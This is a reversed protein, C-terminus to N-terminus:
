TKGGRSPRGYFLHSRCRCDSSGFGKTSPFAEAMAMALVCELSKRSEMMIAGIVNSHVTLYDIHWFKRKRKRAHRALRKIPSKGGSGVYFYLGPEFAINGLRGISITRKGPLYLILIYTVRGAKPSV